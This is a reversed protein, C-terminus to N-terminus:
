FVVGLNEYIERAKNLKTGSLESQLWSTLNKDTCFWRKTLFTDALGWGNYCKVGFKKIISYLDEKTQLMELNRIITNEDTGVRNMASFLNQTILIVDQSSLTVGSPDSGLDLIGGFIPKRTISDLDKGMSEGESKKFIKKIGWTLLVIGIVGGIAYLGIVKFSANDLTKSIQGFNINAKM